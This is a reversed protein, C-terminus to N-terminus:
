FQRCARVRHQAGKYILWTDQNGNSFDERWCIAQSGSMAFTSSWYQETKFDGLGRMHLNGYMYHLEDRSPLFWDDFGNVELADCAQTAWGFGGGRNNAETMIVQTNSKGKGVAREVNFRIDERAAYLKRDIDAPAAELYRWGGSNNGKDYFVIGGAPGTDGIKYVKAPAVPAPTVTAAPVPPAVPAPAVPTPTVPAATPAAAAPTAPRNSAAGSGGSYGTADSELLATITFGEPINRNFQRQIQANEVGLARVRLRYFDGIKSIAGSIIVQAGLMRGAAQASDDDVEGSMQFDLEARIAAIQQRDVVTFTRDNVTNAVLEDIVYESLAPYESQINLIVLKNGKTLHTNLYDSTERVAADLEDAPAVRAPSGACAALAFAGTLVLLIGHLAKLGSQEV